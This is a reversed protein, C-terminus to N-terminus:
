WIHKKVYKEVLNYPIKGKKKYLHWEKKISKSENVMCQVRVNAVGQKEMGLVRAAGRSLDIVRKSGKKVFPGRDIALVYISQGTDTRSVKLVAPLPITPHASTMDWQNYIIGSATKRAHFQDGYYSAIGYEDLHYNKQSTVKFTGHSNKITYKIGAKKSKGHFSLDHRQTIRQCDQWKQVCGSLVLSLLLSYWM